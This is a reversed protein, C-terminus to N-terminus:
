HGWLVKEEKERGELSVWRDVVEVPTCKWGVRLLRGTVREGLEEWCRGVGDREGEWTCCVPDVSVFFM